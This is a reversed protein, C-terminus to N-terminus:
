CCGTCAAAWGGGTIQMLQLLLKQIHVANGAFLPLEFLGILLLLLGLLLCRLHAALHDLPEPWNRGCGHLLLLLLFLIRVFMLLLLLRCGSIILHLNTSLGHIM